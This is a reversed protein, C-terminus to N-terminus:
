LELELIIIDRDRDRGRFIEETSPDYAVSLGAYTLGAWSGKSIEGILNTGIVPCGVVQAANKVVAVLEDAHQPWDKEPAAWGYPVLLLEPNQEKMKALVSKDFTDACILLGINGFKTKVTKVANGKSYPPTMLETLVNIKRHKLLIEGTDDILVAADYIENGDKEILGICIFMEYKRALFGLYKSDKGPISLAREHAEPNVWGLLSAEPFVIIEAKAEKAEILANEIRVFNGAKDGDLCIIQAMAIKTKRSAPNTSQALLVVPLLCNLFITFYTSKINM